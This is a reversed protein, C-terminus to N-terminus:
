KANGTGLFLAPSVHFFAALKRIHAKSLERKGSLVMSAISRAGFVEALDVPRLDRQEMLYRILDLPDGAPLPEVRDDYERVLTSLLSHLAREELGAKGREIARSLEEMSAVARDFEADNEIRKPLAKALLKAYKAPRLTPSSTLVMEEM